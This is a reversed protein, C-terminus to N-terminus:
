SSGCTHILTPREDDVLFQNFSIPADRTPPNCIRYFVTSPRASRAM